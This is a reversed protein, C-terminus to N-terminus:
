DDDNWSFKRRPLSSIDAVPRNSGGAHEWMRLRKSASKLSIDMLHAVAMPSKGEDFLRYCVEEGHKTLRKNDYQNLPHRCYKGNDDNKYQFQKNLEQTKQNRIEAQRKIKMKLKKIDALLVREASIFMLRDMSVSVSYHHKIQRESLLRLYHRLRDVVEYDYSAVSEPAYVLATRVSKETSLDAVLEHIDHGIVNRYDILRRIEDSEDISIAGDFVLANLCKKVQDKEQKSVREVLGNGLISLIHDTTQILNLVKQKLQEAYFLVLVMQLSRLRLINSEFAPLKSGLPDLYNPKKM